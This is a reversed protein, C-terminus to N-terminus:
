AIDCSWLFNHHSESKIVRTSATSSPVRSKLPHDVERASLIRQVAKTNKVLSVYKEELEM